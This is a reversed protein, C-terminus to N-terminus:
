HSTKSHIINSMAADFTGMTYGQLSRDGLISFITPVCLLRGPLHTRWQDPEQDDAGRRELNELGFGLRVTKHTSFSLSWVGFSRNLVAEARKSGGRLGQRSPRM